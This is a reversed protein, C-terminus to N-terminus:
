CVTHKGELSHGFLVSKEYVDFIAEQKRRLIYITAPSEAELNDMSDACVSQM